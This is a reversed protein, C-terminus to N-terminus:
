KAGEQFFRGHQRYADETHCASPMLGEEVQEAAHKSILRILELHNGVREPMDNACLLVDLTAAMCRLATYLEDTIEMVQSLTVPKNNFNRYLQHSDTREFNM